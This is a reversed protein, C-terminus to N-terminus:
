FEMLMLQDYIENYGALNTAPGRGNSPASGSAQYIMEYVTEVEPEIVGFLNSIGQTVQGSFNQAYMGISVGEYQLNDINYLAQNLTGGTNFVIGNGFFLYRGPRITLQNNNLNTVIAGPDSFITNLTATTPAGIVIPEVTGQPQTNRLIAVNNLTGTTGLKEIIMVTNAPTGIFNGVSRYGARGYDTRFRVTHTEGEPVYLYFPCHIHARSGISNWLQIGNHAIQSAGLTDSYWQCYLGDCAGFVATARLRWHGPGLTIPNSPSSNLINTPDYLISDFPETYLSTTNSRSTSQYQIAVAEVNM